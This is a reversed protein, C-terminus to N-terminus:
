QSELLRIDADVMIQVLEPVMVKAKWGLRQEARTPDGVLENVEAPRCYRSDFRVHKEWDLGVRDFALAVFDQVSYGRGTALM